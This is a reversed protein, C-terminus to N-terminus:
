QEDFKDGRYAGSDNIFASFPAHLIMEAPFAELGAMATAAVAALVVCVLM